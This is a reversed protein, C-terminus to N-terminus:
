DINLLFKEAEVYKKRNKIENIIRRLQRSTLSFEEQCKALIDATSSQNEKDIRLLLLTQAPALFAENLRLNLSLRCFAEAEEYKSKVNKRLIALAQNHYAISKEQDNETADVAMRYHYLADDLTSRQRALINAKNNLYRFQTKDEVSDLLFDAEKTFDHHELLRAYYVRFTDRTDRIRDLKPFVIKKVLDPRQDTLHRILKNYFPREYFRETSTIKDLYENKANDNLSKLFSSTLISNQRFEGRSVRHNIANAGPFVPRAIFASCFDEATDLYHSSIECKAVLDSIKNLIEDYDHCWGIGATQAEQILRLLEKSSHNVKSYFDMAFDLHNTRADGLRLACVHCYLKAWACARQDFGNFVAASAEFLSIADSPKNSALLAIGLRTGSIALGYENKTLRQEDYNDQAIVYADDLNDIALYAGGLCSLMHSLHSHPLKRVLGSNLLSELITASLDARGAESLIEAYTRLFAEKDIVSYTKLWPDTALKRQIVDIASEIECLVLCSQIYALVSRAYRTRLSLDLDVYALDRLKEFLAARKLKNTIKNKSLFSRYGSVDGACHLGIAYDAQNILEESTIPQNPTGKTQAVKDSVSRKPIM